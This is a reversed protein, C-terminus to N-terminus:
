HQLKIQRFSFFNTNIKVPTTIQLLYFSYIYTKIQKAATIAAEVNTSAHIKWNPCVINNLPSKIPGIDAKHLM